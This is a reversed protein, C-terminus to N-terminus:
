MSSARDASVVYTDRKNNFDSIGLCKFLLLGYDRAFCYAM